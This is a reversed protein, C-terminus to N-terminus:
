RENQIADIYIKRLFAPWEGTRHEFMETIIKSLVTLSRIDSDSLYESPEISHPTEIADELARNLENEMLPQQDFFTADLDRADELYTDHITQAITKHLRLKTQNKLPPMDTVLRLFEWGLNHRLKPPQNVLLHSQLVKLRMLDELSLSENVAGMEEISFQTEGFGHHVFDDVVSNGYLQNRIMPRLTFQDGFLTRLASFRDHYYYRRAERMQDHFSELSGTLVNPVGIKIREAFSSLLRAAHPRVYGVVRIQDASDTFYTTVIDHFVAPPIVEFAEASILCYDTKAKRIRAALRKFKDIAKDRAPVLKDKAYVKCHQKLSNHAFKAPYFISKGKLTVRGQAFAKQISTSGTKHDGIHIILTKHPNIM